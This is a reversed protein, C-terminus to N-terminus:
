DWLYIVVEVMSPMTLLKPQVTCICGHTFCNAFASSGPINVKKRLDDKRYGLLELYKVRSDEEFNVKLFWVNFFVNCNVIKQKRESSKM